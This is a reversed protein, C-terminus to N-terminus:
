TPLVFIADVELLFGPLSVEVTTRVPAPAPFRTAYVRNFEAFDRSFDELFVGVRVAHEATCGAEGAVTLLNTLTQETQEAIGGDVISGTAPDAPVQGAIFLFGNAVIGQSYPGVPAPASTTNISTRM